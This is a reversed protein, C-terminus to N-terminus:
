NKKEPGTNDINNIMIQPMNKTSVVGEVLYTGLM